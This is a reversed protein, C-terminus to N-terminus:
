AKAAARGPEESRTRTALIVEEPDRLTVRYVAHPPLADDFRRANELTDTGVRMLPQGPEELLVTDSM